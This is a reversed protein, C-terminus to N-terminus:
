INRVCRTSFAFNYPFGIAQTPHAYWLGGYLVYYGGTYQGGSIAAYDSTWLANPICSPGNSGKCGTYQLIINSSTAGVSNGDILNLSNVVSTTLFPGWTTLEAYTPLRWAKNGYSATGTGGAQASNLFDCVQAATNQTCLKVASSCGVPGSCGAPPSAGLWCGSSQNYTNAQAYGLTGYMDAAINCATVRLPPSTNLTVAANTGCEFIPDPPGNVCLQSTYDGQSDSTINYNGPSAAPWATIIDACSDNIKPTANYGYACDITNGANCGSIVARKIDTLNCYTPTYTAINSALSSTTLNYYGSIPTAGATIFTNYIGTCSKNANNNYGYACDNLNANKGTSNGSIDTNLDCGIIAAIQPNNLNSCNTSIPTSGGTSTLNHNGAGAGSWYSAIQNCGQNYGNINAYTCDVLNGADCGSISASAAPITGTFNCAINTANTIPPGNPAAGSFITYNGGTPAGAWTSLVQTCSHNLNNAYAYKCASFNGNNCSQIEQSAYSNSNFKNHNILPISAGIILNVILLFILAEAVSFAKKTKIQM